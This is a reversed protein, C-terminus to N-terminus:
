QTAVVVYAHKHKKKFYAYNVNQIFQMLETPIAERDIDNAVNAMRVAIQEKKTQSSQVYENRLDQLELVVDHNLAETQRKVIASVTALRGQDEPHFTNNYGVYLVVILALMPYWSSFLFQKM